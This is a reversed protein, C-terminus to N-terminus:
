VLGQPCSPLHLCVFGLMLPLSFTCRVRCVLCRAEVLRSVVTYMCSKSHPVCPFLLKLFVCAPLCTVELSLIYMTASLLLVVAPRQPCIARELTFHPPASEHRCQTRQRGRRDSRAYSRLVRSFGLLFSVFLCVFMCVRRSMGYRCEV